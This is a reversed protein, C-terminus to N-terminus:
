TFGCSTGHWRRAVQLELKAYRDIELVSHGRRSVQSLFDLRM